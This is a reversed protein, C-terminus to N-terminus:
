RAAASAVAALYSPAVIESFTNRGNAGSLTKWCSNDIKDFIGYTMATELNM